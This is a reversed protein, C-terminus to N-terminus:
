KKRGNQAELKERLLNIVQELQHQEDHKNKEVLQLDAMRQAEKKEIQERLSNVTGKLQKNEDNIGSM